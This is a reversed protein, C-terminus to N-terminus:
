QALLYTRTIGRGPRQSVSAGEHGDQWPGRNVVGDNMLLRAHAFGGTMFFVTRGSARTFLTRQDFTNLVCQRSVAPVLVTGGTLHQVVGQKGFQRVTIRRAPDVAHLFGQVVLVDRLASVVPPQGPQREGQGQRRVLHVIRSRPGRDRHQHVQVGRLIARFQERVLDQVVKGIQGVLPRYSPQAFGVPDPYGLRPVGGPQIGHVHEVGHVTGRDNGSLLPGRVVSLQPRQILVEHGADLLRELRVDLNVVADLGHRLVHRVLIQADGVLVPRAIPRHQQVQAHSLSRVIPADVEGVRFNQRPEGPLDLAPIPLQAPLFPVFHM